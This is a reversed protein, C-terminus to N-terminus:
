SSDAERLRAMEKRGNAVAKSRLADESSSKNLEEQDTECELRLMDMQAKLSRLKNALVRRKRAIEDENLVAEAKGKGRSCHPM